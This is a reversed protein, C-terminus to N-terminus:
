ENTKYVYQTGPWAKKSLVELMGSQEVLENPQGKCM